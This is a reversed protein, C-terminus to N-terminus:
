VDDKEALARLKDAYAYYSRTHCCPNEDHGSCSTGRYEDGMKGAELLTDRRLKRLASVIVQRMHRPTTFEQTEKVYTMIEEAIKQIDDTM